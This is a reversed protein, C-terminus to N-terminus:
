LGGSFLGPVGPFLMRAFRRFIFALAAITFVPCPAERLVSPVPRRRLVQMDRGSLRLSQNLYLGTDARDHHCETTGTEIILGSM